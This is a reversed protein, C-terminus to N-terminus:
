DYIIDEKLTEKLIEKAKLLRYNVTTEPAKTIKAIDKISLDRYYKLLIVTKLDIPLSQLAENLSIVTDPDSKSTSKIEQVENLPIHVTFAKQRMINKCTNIAIASLWTNVSSEHKFSSLKRYAKIFTEQTADEALNIDKLYLFCLRKISQANESYIKEFMQNKTNTSM